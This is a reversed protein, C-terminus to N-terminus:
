FAIVKRELGRKMSLFEPANDTYVRVEKLGAHKEIWQIYNQFYDETHERNILVHVTTYLQRAFIMTLFSRNGGHALTKFPGCIDAHM